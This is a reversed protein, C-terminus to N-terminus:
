WLILGGFFANPLYAMLNLPLMFVIVEFASVLHRPTHHTNPPAAVPHLCYCSLLAVALPLLPMCCSGQLRGAIIIGMIRSDVNM